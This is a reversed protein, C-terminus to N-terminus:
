AIGDALVSGIALILLQADVASVITTGDSRAVRAARRDSADGTGVAASAVADATRGTGALVIVPRGDELSHEIDDYTVEGGNSVLTLSPRGSAIASAVRSLWPSEDGWGGGPVLIVHSHRPELRAADPAAVRSPLLVTGEAAVGVLPFRAKAAERVQGMVRMVGADTGGDVVAAGWRDLAPVLAELAATVAAVHSPAMASAGGVSVLVPRRVGIGLARLAGPIEAPVSVRVRPPAARDDALGGM